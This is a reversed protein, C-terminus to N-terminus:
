FKGELTTIMAQYVQLHVICAFICANKWLLCIQAKSYRKKGRFIIHKNSGLLNNPKSVLAMMWSLQSKYSYQTVSLFTEVAFNM